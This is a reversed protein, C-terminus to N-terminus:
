IFHHLNHEDLIIEEKEKGTKFLIKKFQKKTEEFEQSLFCEWEKYINM